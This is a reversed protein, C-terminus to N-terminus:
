KATSSLTQRSVCSCPHRTLTILMSQRSGSGDMSNTAVTGNVGDTSSGGIDLGPHGDSEFPWRLADAYFGPALAVHMQASSFYLNWFATQPQKYFRIGVTTVRGNDDSLPPEFIFLDANRNDFEDVRGRGVFDGPESSLSLKCYKSVQAWPDYLMTTVHAINNDSRPDDTTSTVSATFTMSQLIPRPTEPGRVLIQFTATASSATLEDISCRVVDIGSCALHLGLPVGMSYFRGNTPMAFEVTLKQAAAPGANRLNVAYEVPVNANAITPGSITLILDASVGALVVPAFTTIAVTVACLRFFGAANRNWHHPVVINYGLASTLVAPLIVLLPAVGEDECPAFPAFHRWM